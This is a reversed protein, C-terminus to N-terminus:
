CIWYLRANADYNWGILKVAHGGAVNGTVHEYIGNKYSMFDQYITFGVMLPGNTMLELMIDDYSTPLKMSGVQCSYKKYPTTSIDCQYMCMGTTGVYKLCGEEVLGNSILYILSPTLYGGSGCGGNSFDCSVMDQPSLQM